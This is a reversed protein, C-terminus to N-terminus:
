PQVKGQFPLSFYFVSGKGPVSEVWIRGGHREVIRKCIALGIGTGPYEGHPHLRLFVEFIQDRHQPEIGIGNDHVSFVWEEDRREVSVHVRPPQRGRFKIANGILNQFVQVLQRTDAVVSPLPDYTVEAQAEQISTGLNAIAEAVAASGDTPTLPKTDTQARSYELLDAILLRMRRAGSAAHGIWELAEEDLKGRYRRELLECFSAVTRAPEQLDHSAIDAFRQLEANSRALEATRERLEDHAKRLSEAALKARTIDRGIASAGVIQGEADRIPSVSLSIDIVTGDKRRRRTEYPEVSECAKLRRLIGPMEDPRDPPALMAVPKGIMEQDTYGYIREAGRNWSTIVGDLDKGIIADDSSEVIAAWHSWLLAVDERSGSRGPSNM